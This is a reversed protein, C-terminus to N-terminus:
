EHIEGSVRALKGGVVHLGCEKQAPDEWWWRGARFDEGPQIARTCPACGISPFGQMHMPNYPIQNVRIYEWLADAEVDALPNVKILRRKEDWQAFPVETRTGSQARRVGSIWVAVGKLARELPEVKRIHCCTKRNAISQYFGNIGEANVFAEVQEADPFYVEVPIGYTDRTQQLLKYTEEFMRGTDLTFVRIPLASQAIIHTIVQDEFSLSSSFAASVGKSQALFEVLADLREQWPLTALMEDWELALAENVPM